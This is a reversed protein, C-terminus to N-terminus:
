DCLFTGDEYVKEGTEQILKFFNPDVDKAFVVDIRYLGSAKDLEDHLEAVKGPSPKKLDVALDFDAGRRATGKVRSGFLWITKPQLRESILQIAAKLVERERDDALFM